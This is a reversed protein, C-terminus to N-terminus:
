ESSKAQPPAQAFVSHAYDIMRDRNSISLHLHHDVRKRILYTLSHKSARHVTILLHADAELAARVAQIFRESKLEMPGVEDVVILEAQEVAREVAAAGIGELDPIHVRYRGVTPGQGHHLHALTGERGTALDKLAFGVRRGVVRIEQTVVGGVRFPLSEALSQVFTTKGV